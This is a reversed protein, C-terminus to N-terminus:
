GPYTYDWYNSSLDEEWRTRCVRCEYLTINVSMGSEQYETNIHEELRREQSLKLGSAIANCGPCLTAQDFYGYIMGARLFDVANKSLYRFEVGWEREVETLPRSTESKIEATSKVHRKAFKDTAMFDPSKLLGYYSREPGFYHKIGGVYSRWPRARHYGRGEANPRHAEYEQRSVPVMRTWALVSLNDFDQYFKARRHLRRAEQSSVVLNTFHLGSALNRWGHLFIKIATRPLLGVLYPRNSDLVPTLIFRCLRPEVRTVEVYCNLYSM